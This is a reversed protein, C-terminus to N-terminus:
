SLDKQASLYETTPESRDTNHGEAQWPGIKEDEANRQDFANLCMIPDIFRLHDYDEEIVIATCLQIELDKAVDMEELELKSV